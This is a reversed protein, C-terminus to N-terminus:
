VQEFQDWEVQAEELEEPTPESRTLKHFLDIIQAFTATRPNLVHLEPQKEHRQQENM